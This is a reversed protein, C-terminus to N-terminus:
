DYILVVIYSHELWEIVVVLASDERSNNDVGNVELNSNVEPRKHHLNMM